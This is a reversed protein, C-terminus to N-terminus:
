ELALAIMISLLTMVTYERFRQGPRALDTKFYSSQGDQPLAKLPPRLTSPRSSAGACKKRHDWFLAQDHPSPLLSPPLYAPPFLLPPYHTPPLNSLVFAQCRFTAFIQEESVRHEGPRQRKIASVLAKWWDFVYSKPNQYRFGWSRLKLATARGHRQSRGLFLHKYIDSNNKYHCLSSDSSSELVIIQM